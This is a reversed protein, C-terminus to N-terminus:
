QKEEITEDLNELYEDDILTLGCSPCIRDTSLVPAGCAPCIEPKEKIQGKASRVEKLLSTLESVKMGDVELVRLEDTQIWLIDGRGDTVAAMPFTGQQLSSFFLSSAGDSQYMGYGTGILIYKHGTSKHKVITAM